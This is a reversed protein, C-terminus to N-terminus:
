PIVLHYLYRTSHYTSPNYSALSSESENIINQWLIKHGEAELLSKMALGIQHKKQMHHYNQESFDVTQYALRLHTLAIGLPTKEALLQGRDGEFVMQTYFAAIQGGPKLLKVVRRLTKELDTPMYLTDISIVADFTASPFTLDDMNQVQFDLRARKSATRALAQRIAELSYDIGTFHAGTTDSLYEAIMGKSCGLELVGSEPTLPLLDRLADVQDMDSFGTQCLARGFVRRCYEDYAPSQATLTNWQEYWYYIPPRAQRLSLAASRGSVTLCNAGAAQNIFGRQALSTEATSWDQRLDLFYAGAEKISKPYFAYHNNNPTEVPQELEILVILYQIEAESLGTPPTNM